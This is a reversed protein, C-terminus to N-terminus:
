GSGPDEDTAIIHSTCPLCGNIRVCVTPSFPSFHSGAHHTKNTHTSNYVLHFTSLCMLTSGLVIFLADEQLCVVGEDTM